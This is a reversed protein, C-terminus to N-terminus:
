SKMRKTLNPFTQRMLKLVTPRRNKYTFYAVTSAIFAGITAVILDSMTDRLGSGQFPKGMLMANAPLNWRQMDTMLWYDANFEIIEWMVGISIAFSFAFIAVFLPNMRMNYRANFFYVLLYGVFGAIVGSSAHLMDDWWWLRGYQGFADGIVLSLVAFSMIAVLLATPLHMRQRKEFHAFGLTVVIAISTLLIVRLNTGIETATSPDNRAILYIVFAVGYVLPLFLMYRVIMILTLNTNRKPRM